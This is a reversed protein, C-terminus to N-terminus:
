FDRIARVMKSFVQCEALIPIHLDDKPVILGVNKQIPSCHFM